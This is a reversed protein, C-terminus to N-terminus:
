RLSRKILYNKLKYPLASLITVLPNHNVSCIEKPHQAIGAKFVLRAVKDPKSIKGIYKPVLNIFKDFENKYLEKYNESKFRLTDVLIQTQIAGPRILISKVGKLSLEIKIADYLSELAQKSVAYPQFPAPVKYSESSIVILRGMSKHLLPLFHKTLNALGLFNVDLISKLKDAGAESVPYFDFVGANSILVDLQGYHKQVYSACNAVDIESTVDLKTITFGEKESIESSEEIKIDTAIVEFHDRWYAMAIAEGLGGNAGTILIVKKNM